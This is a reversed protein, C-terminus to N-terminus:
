RKRIAKIPPAAAGFTWSRAPLPFRIGLADFRLKIRRQLERGARMQQGPLTKLRARLIMASPTFHDLGLVELPELLLPAFEPDDLLTAAVAQLEAILLDPDHSRSVPLDLLFCSYGRTVNSLRRISSNSFTHLAGDGSRLVTTRLRIDEVAGRRGNIECVDGARIHNELLLFIGTLTDEIFSRAGLGLALGGIGLGALVPSLDFGFQRPISLGALLWITTIAIKRAIGALTDARKELEANPAPRGRRMVRLSHRRLRTILRVAMWHSLAAAAALSIARLLTTLPLAGLSNALEM